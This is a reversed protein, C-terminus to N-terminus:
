VSPCSQVMGQRSHPFRCLRRRRRCPLDGRPTRFGFRADLDFCIASAIVSRKYRSLMELVTVHQWHAYIKADMPIVTTIFEPTIIWVAACYFLGALALTVLEPRILEFIGRAM